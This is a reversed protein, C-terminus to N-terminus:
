KSGIRSFNKGSVFRIESFKRKLEAMRRKEKELRKIAAGLKNKKEDEIKIKYDLLKQLKFKYVAM